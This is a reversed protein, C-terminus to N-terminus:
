ATEDRFGPIPPPTGDGTVGVGGVLLGNTYLPVGGPTGDLSTAPVPVIALGPTANFLPISGPPPINTKKFKNIDSFFLNSLGVGVLPGPATNIIGPPFHQQIIFGATRSTFANQNSSLFAATGAKSVATAIQPTTPEGGHVNWVGLVNGERDTVAIVSNPSISVARTVAQGIVKTVEAATLQADVARSLGFALFVSALIGFRM